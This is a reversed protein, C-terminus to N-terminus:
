YDRFTSNPLLNLISHCRHIFDWFLAIRINVLVLFHFRTCPPTETSVIIHLKDFLYYMLVSPLKINSM